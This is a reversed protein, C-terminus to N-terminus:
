KRYKDFYLSNDGTHNFVGDLIVHMSFEQAKKILHEFAEDGGFMEDVSLYNGTDYKHNSYATFIPSLYLVNVGLEQLYPLKEAIGWLTGGFFENNELKGGAM